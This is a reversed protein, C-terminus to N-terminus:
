WARLRSRLRTVAQSHMQSVRSVTIKLVEAVESMNMDHECVMSLMQQEREPLRNIANVLATRRQLDQLRALPDASEDAVVHSPVDHASHERPMHQLDELHVLQSDRLMARLTQYEPLSLDLSVAIESELPPRGLQHELRRVSADVSRQQRRTGRTLHDAARLEDLMAGRIRPTAFAEFEAGVASDFRTIADALGIMGAQFIDDMEVNASLRSMMSFALRRVMPRYQRLSADLTSRGPEFTTRAGDNSPGGMPAGHSLQM